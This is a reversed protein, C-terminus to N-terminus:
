ELDLTVGTLWNGSRTVLLLILSKCANVKIIHVTVRTPHLGPVLLGIRTLVM